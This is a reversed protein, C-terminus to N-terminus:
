DFTMYNFPREFREIYIKFAKLCQATPTSTVDLEQHLQVSLELFFQKLSPEAITSNNAKRYAAIRRAMDAATYHTGFVEQETMGDSIRKLLLKDSSADLVIVSKPFIDERPVYGDWSKKEGEELEPEDEVIEEGEENFKKPKYLFIEQAQEYTKPFGDLIYGRNRCDNDTL